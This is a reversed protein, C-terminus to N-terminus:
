APSARSAATRRATATRTTGSAAASAYYVGTAPPRYGFDVTTVTNGGAIPIAPSQSTCAGCPAGPDGYGTQTYGAPVTATNVGVYYTGDPLGVFQYVGTSDTATTAIANGSNCPTSSCLYVTM